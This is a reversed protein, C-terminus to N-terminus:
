LAKGGVIETLGILSRCNDTRHDFVAWVLEFLQNMSTCVM